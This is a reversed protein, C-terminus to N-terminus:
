KRFYITFNARSSQKNQIMLLAGHVWISFVEDALADKPALHRGLANVCNTLECEAENLASAVDKVRSKANTWNALLKETESDAM